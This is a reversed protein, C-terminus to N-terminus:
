PKPSWDGLEEVLENVADETATMRKDAKDWLVTIRANVDNLVEDTRKRLIERVSTIREHVKGIIARIRAETEALNQSQVADRFDAALEQGALYSAFDETLDFDQALDHARKELPSVEPGPKPHRKYVGKPREPHVGHSLWHEALSVAEGWDSSEGIPASSREYDYGANVQVTGTDDQYFVRATAEHEAKHLVLEGSKITIM